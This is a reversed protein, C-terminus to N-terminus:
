LFFLFYIANLRPVQRADIKAFPARAALARRTKERKSPFTLLGFAFVGRNLPALFKKLNRNAKAM